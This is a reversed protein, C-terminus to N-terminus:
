DSLIACLVVIGIFLIVLAISIWIPSLVWLWSWTIVGCLKLIIFVITLLGTFGIGSSSTASTTNSNNSM